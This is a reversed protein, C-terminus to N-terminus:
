PEFVQRFIASISFRNHKEISRNWEQCVVKIADDDGPPTWDFSETGGRAELFDDIEDAETEERNAFNLSWAQPSTNLGYAQRQEYGDGFQITKVTPKKAKAAGFEPTWTFEPM